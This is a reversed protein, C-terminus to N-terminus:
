VHSSILATGQKLRRELFNKQRYRYQLQESLSRNPAADGFTSAMGDQNFTLNGKSPACFYQQGM